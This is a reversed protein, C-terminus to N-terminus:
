ADAKPSGVRMKTWAPPDSAPFSDDSADDVRDLPVPNAPVSSPAPAVARRAAESKGASQDPGPRPDSFSKGPAETPEDM